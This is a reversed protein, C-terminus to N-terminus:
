CDEIHEFKFCLTRFTMNSKGHPSNWAEAEFQLKDSNIHKPLQSVDIWVEKVEGPFLTFYNDEYFVPLALEGSLKDTVKLRIFFATEDESNSILARKM